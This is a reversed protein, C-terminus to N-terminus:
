RSKVLVVCLESVLPFSVMLSKRRNFIQLIPLVCDRHLIFILFCSAAAEWGVVAKRDMECMHVRKYFHSLIHSCRTFYLGTQSM